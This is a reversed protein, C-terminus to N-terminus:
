DAKGGRCASRLGQWPEQLKMVHLGPHDSRLAEADKESGDTSGDIVVWVDKCHQLAQLITTKLLGGTNYSPILIAVRM